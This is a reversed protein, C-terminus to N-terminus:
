GSCTPPHHDSDVRLLKGDALVIEATTLHDITRAPSSGRDRRRHCAWRHRRRAATSSGSSRSPSSYPSHSYGAAKSKSFASFRNAPQHDIGHLRERHPLAGSRRPPQPDHPRPPLTSADAARFRDSCPDPESPPPQDAHRQPRHRTSPGRAPPDRTGSPRARFHTGRDRWASGQTNGASGEATPSSRRRAASNADVAPAESSTVCAM